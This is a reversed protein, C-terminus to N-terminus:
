SMMSRMETSKKFRRSIRSRPMSMPREEQSSLPTHPPPQGFGNLHRTQNPPRKRSLNPLTQTNSRLQLPLMTSPRQVLLTTTDTDSSLIILSKYTLQHPSPEGLIRCSRRDFWRRFRKLFGKWSNNRTNGQGRGEAHNVPLPNPSCQCSSSSPSLHSSSSQYSSKIRENQSHHLPSQPNTQLNCYFQNTKPFYFPLLIPLKFSLSLCWNLLLSM